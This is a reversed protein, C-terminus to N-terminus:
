INPGGECPAELKEALSSKQSQLTGVKQFLSEENYFDSYEISPVVKSTILSRPYKKAMEKLKSIKLNILAQNTHEKEKPKNAELWKKAEEFTEFKPQGEVFKGMYTYIAYKNLAYPEIGWQNELLSTEKDMVSEISTTNERTQTPQIGVFHKQSIEELTPIFPNDPYKRHLDEVYEIAGLESDFAKNEVFWKREKVEEIKPKEIRGYREDLISNVSDVLKKIKYPVTDDYELRFNSTTLEIGLENHHHSRNDIIDVLNPSIKSVNKLSPAKTHSVGLLESKKNKSVKESADWVSGSYVDTPAAWKIDESKPYMVFRVSSENELHSIRKDVPKTFASITFEGGAKKNDEIHQLLNQLLLDLEVSSYAGIASYFGQGRSYAEEPNYIINNEKKWQEIIERSQEYQKNKEIFHKSGINSLDANKLEKKFLTPNDDILKQVRVSNVKAFEYTFNDSVNYEYYNGKELNKYKPFNKYHQIEDSDVFILFSSDDIYYPKDPILNYPNNNKNVDLSVDSLDVDDVSENFLKSIHNSAEQYTKFKQNDPTTYEVEYGPLIIKSNSYALLNALDNITMNDPLKDVEVEKQRLLNRIFDNIEKLLQRLLSILNKDKIKDLKDAAMLGLLTVIAEEQQEELTYKNNIDDREQKWLELDDLYEQESYYRPEYQNEEPLYDSDNPNPKERLPKKRNYDRKVQEFVEKGRGTELEKLLSQYLTTFSSNEKRLLNLVEEESYWNDKYKYKCAM